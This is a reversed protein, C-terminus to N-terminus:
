QHPTSTTSSQCAGHPRPKTLQHYYAHIGIGVHRIATMTPYRRNDHPPHQQQGHEVGGVSPGDYANVHFQHYCRPVIPHVVLTAAPPVDTCCSYASQEVCRVPIGNWSGKYKEAVEVGTSIGEVIFSLAQMGRQLPSAIHHHHAAYTSAENPSHASSKSYICQFVNAV